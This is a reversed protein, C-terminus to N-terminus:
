TYEHSNEMVEQYKNDKNAISVTRMNSICIYGKRKNHVSDKIFQIAKEEDTISIRVRGIRYINNECSM